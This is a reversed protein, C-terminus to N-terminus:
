IKYQLYKIKSSFYIFSLIKIKSKLNKKLFYKLNILFINLGFQRVKKFFFHCM